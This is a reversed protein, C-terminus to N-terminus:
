RLAFGSASSFPALGFYSTHNANEFPESPQFNGDCKM